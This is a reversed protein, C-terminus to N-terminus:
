AITSGNQRANGPLSPDVSTFPQTQAVIIGKGRTERQRVGPTRLDGLKASQFSRAVVCAPRSAPSVCRAAPADPRVWDAPRALASKEPDADDDGPPQLRAACDPLGRASTFQHCCFPQRGGRLNWKSVISLIIGSGSRSRVMKPRAVAGAKKRPEIAPNTESMD